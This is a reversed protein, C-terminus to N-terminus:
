SRSSKGVYKLSHIFSLPLLSKTVPYHLLLDKLIYKDYFLITKNQKYEIIKELKPIDKMIENKHKIIFCMLETSDYKKIDEWGSLGKIECSNKCENCYM